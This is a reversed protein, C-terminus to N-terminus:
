FIFICVSQDGGTETTKGAASQAIRLQNKISEIEADKQAM